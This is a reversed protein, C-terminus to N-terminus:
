PRVSFQREGRHEKLQPQILEIWDCITPRTDRPDLLDAVGFAEARAFPSRKAALSEEIERRRVEPDPASEIERRYAVAVGGELPIAGQEASPWNYTLCEPGFHAAGAVGFVKRTTIAIWPVTSQVVAFLARTGHRITADAEAEPGILFGPEDVLSVIPLHFTECTDLFRTLKQAGSATMAGAYHYPDNAIMGVPQGNFRALGAIQSRGYKPTLEFFSGLDVISEILKRMSYGKRRERPVLELLAQERRDIPDDCAIRPAPEWVNHPLYSFFRRIQALADVEDEAVCDIVGSKQHVAPGGLEEKTMSVGRAREVVRPGAIMVQSTKRSMVTFHSAVLRAAPMGAVPGLAASAVPAIAMARMMSLFRHPANVSEVFGGAAKDDGGRPVSGGGGELLRVLPLRYRVALEEAMVSKRQGAPTPSGGKTTFDEGGVVVRRGDIEGVGLVYNAPSFSKLQGNEDQESYGAIPGHENFSGPDFLSDIRERVTMRGAERQAAVGEAGGLEQALKRRARIGEVEEKWSM